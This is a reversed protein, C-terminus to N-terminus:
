RVLSIKKVLRNNGYSVNLFYLGNSVPMGTDDRGSWSIVSPRNIDSYYVCRGTVDLIEIRYKHTKNFDGQLSMSIESSFPNPNTKIKLMKGNNLSRDTIRKDVTAVGSDAAWVYVRALDQAGTGDTGILTAFYRGPITYTHSVQEGTGTTGDGFDWEWTQMSGNISTGSATFDMGFPAIGKHYSSSIGIEPPTKSPDNVLFIKELVATKGNENRAEVKFTHKGPVANPDTYFLQYKSPDWQNGISTDHGLTILSDDFWANILAGNPLSIGPMMKNFLPHIDTSLNKTVNLQVAFGGSFNDHYANWSGYRSLDKNKDTVQVMWILPAEGHKGFWKWEHKHSKAYEVWQKKGFYYLNDSGKPYRCVVVARNNKIADEFDDSSKAMYLTRSNIPFDEGGRYGSGHADYDVVPPIKGMSRELNSFDMDYTSKDATRDMVDYGWPCCYQICDYGSGFISEDILMYGFTRPIIGATEPWILYGQNKLATFREYFTQSLTGWGKFGAPDAAPGNYMTNSL